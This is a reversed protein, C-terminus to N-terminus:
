FQPTHAIFSIKFSNIDKQPSQSEIPQITIDRRMESLIAEPSYHRRDEAYLGFEDIVALLRTRSLVEETTAQLAERMDTTTTPLVFRQPIQQQVVLLTAESTYRNPILSLAVLTGMTALASALLVWWRRRALVGWLRDVTQNINIEDEPL